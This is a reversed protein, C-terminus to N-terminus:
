KDKTALIWSTLSDLTGCEMGVYEFPIILFTILTTKWLDIAATYIAKYAQMRYRINNVMAAMDFHQKDSAREMKTYMAQLDAEVKSMARPIVNPDTFTIYYQKWDQYVKQMNSLWMGFGNGYGATGLRGTDGYTFRTASRSGSPRQINIKCHNMELQKICNSLEPTLDTKVPSLVNKEFNKFCTAVTGLCARIKEISMRDGRLCVTGSFNEDSVNNSALRKIYSDTYAMWNQTFFASLGMALSAYANIYRQFLNFISGWTRALLGELGPVPEGKAIKESIQMLERNAIDYDEMGELCNWSHNM